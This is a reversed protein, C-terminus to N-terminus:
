PDAPERAIEHLAPEVIAEDLEVPGPREGGGVVALAGVHPEEAPEEAPLRGVFAEGARHLGEGVAAHPNADLRDVGAVGM